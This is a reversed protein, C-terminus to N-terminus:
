TKSKESGSNESIEETMILTVGPVNDMTMEHGNIEHHDKSTENLKATNQNAASEGPFLGGSPEKEEGGDDGSM